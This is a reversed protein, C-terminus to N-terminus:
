PRKIIVEGSETRGPIGYEFREGYDNRSFRAYKFKKYKEVPGWLPARDYEEPTRLAQMSTFVYIYLSRHESFRKSLLSFLDTLNRENFAADEMLVDLSLVKDDKNVFKQLEAVDRVILYRFPSRYAEPEIVEGPGVDPKQGFSFTAAVLTIIIFFLNRM